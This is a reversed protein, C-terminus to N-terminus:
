LAYLREVISTIVNVTVANGLCQYRRTDSLGETWGDPFGQLRECELPTLRRVTDVRQYNRSGGAHITASHENDFTTGNTDTTRIFPQRGGGQMTSLSPSLGDTGYVRDSAHRPRNLTVIPTHGGGKGMAGTLAPSQNTMCAANKQLGGRVEVVFSGEKRRTGNTTVASATQTRPARREFHVPHIEDDGGFPFVEPQPTGRLHGVIFVRERNQPVGHHKSNLVQWQCDYGLEDLATIITFFTRGEDHSLLGKVNELLLLRPQKERAIRAIEFFLTGRQDSFGRGLGAVSFAQCPFGGVFLDFDPLKAADIATIDGFAYHEPFHRQYVESAYRDIESFGVCSPKAQQDDSRCGSRELDRSGPPHRRKRSEFACKIGLEFGGIGSFASFYTFM